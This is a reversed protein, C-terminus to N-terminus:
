RGGFALMGLCKLAVVIAVMLAALLGPAAFGQLCRLWFPAPRRRTM